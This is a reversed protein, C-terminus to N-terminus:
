KASEILTIYEPCLYLQKREDKDVDTLSIHKIILGILMIGTLM